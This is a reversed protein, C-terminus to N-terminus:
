TAGRDTISRGWSWFHGPACHVPFAPGCLPPPPTLVFRGSDDEAFVGFSALARLVRHLAPAHTGTATALEKSSKPGDNLLDAIGLTAAVYLARSVLFGGILQLMAASPPLEHTERPQDQASM